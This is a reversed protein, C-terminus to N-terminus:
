RAHFGEQLAMIEMVEELKKDNKVYLEELRSRRRDWERTDIRRSRVAANPQYLVIKPSAMSVVPESRLFFSDLCLLNQLLSHLWSQSRSASPHSLQIRV